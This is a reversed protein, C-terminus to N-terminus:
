CPRRPKRTVCGGRAYEAMRAQYECYALYLGRSATTTSKSPQQGTRVYLQGRQGLVYMTEISM